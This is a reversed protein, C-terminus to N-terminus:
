ADRPPPLAPPARMGPMRRAPTQGPVSDAVPVPAAIRDRLWDGLPVCGACLHATAMRDDPAHDQGSMPHHMGATPQPMCAPAAMSPLSLCLALLALIVRIFM